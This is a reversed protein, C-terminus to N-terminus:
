PSNFTNDTNIKMSPDVKSKLMGGKYANVETTNHRGVTVSVADKHKDTQNAADGGPGEWAFKGHKDFHTSVTNNNEGM